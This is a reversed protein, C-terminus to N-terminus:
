ENQGLERGCDICFNNSHPNQWGCDSCIQKATSNSIQQQQSGSHNRGEDHDTMMHKLDERAMKTSLMPLLGITLVVLGLFPDGSFILFFSLIIGFGISSLIIVAKAKSPETRENHRYNWDSPSLEDSDDSTM